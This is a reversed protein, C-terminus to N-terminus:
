ASPGATSRRHHPEPCRHGSGPAPSAGASLVGAAPVVGPDARRRPRAILRLFWHTSTAFRCKARRNWPSMRRSAPVLWRRLKAISYRMRPQGACWRTLAILRSTSESRGPPSALDGGSPVVGRQVYRSTGVTRAGSIPNRADALSCRRARGATRRLLTVHSPTYTAATSPGGPCEPEGNEDEKARNSTVRAGTRAWAATIAVTARVMRTTVDTHRTRIPRGYSRHRNRCPDSPRM